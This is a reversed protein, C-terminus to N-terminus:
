CNYMSRCCKGHSNNLTYYSNKGNATKTGVLPTYPESVVTTAKISSYV